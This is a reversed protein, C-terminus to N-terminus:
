PPFVGAIGNKGSRPLYKKLAIEINNLFVGGRESHRTKRHSELVFFRLEAFKGCM